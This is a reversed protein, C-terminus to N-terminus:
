RPGATPGVPQRQDRGDDGRLWQRGLTREPRHWVDQDCRMHRNVARWVALLPLLNEQLVAAAERSTLRQEVHDVLGFPVLYVIAVWRARADGRTAHCPAVPNTSWPM